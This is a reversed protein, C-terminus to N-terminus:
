LKTTRCCRATTFRTEAIVQQQVLRRLLPDQQTIGTGVATQQQQQQQQIGVVTGGTTLNQLQINETAVGSPIRRIPGTTTRRAARQRRKVCCQVSLLLTCVLATLVGIYVLVMLDGGRKGKLVSGAITLSIGTLIGAIFLVQLCYHCFNELTVCHGGCADVGGDTSTACSAPTMPRSTHVVSHPLTYNHTTQGHGIAAYQMFPPATDRPVAYAPYEQYCSEVAQYTRSSVSSNTPSPSDPHPPWHAWPNRAPRVHREAASIGIAPAIPASSNYPPGHRPM